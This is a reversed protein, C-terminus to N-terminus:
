MSVYHTISSIVCSIIYRIIHVCQIIHGVSYRLCLEVFVTMVSLIVYRVFM